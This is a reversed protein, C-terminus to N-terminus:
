LFAREPSARQRGTGGACFSHAKHLAGKLVEGSTRIASGKGVQGLNHLRSKQRM